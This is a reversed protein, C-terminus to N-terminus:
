INGQFKYSVFDLQQKLVGSLIFEANHVEIKETFLDRCAPLDNECTIVIFAFAAINKRIVMISKLSPRSHLVRGGGSEIIDRMMDIGPKVGPTLYFIMNQFLKRLKSKRMSERLNFHFVGEADKDILVFNAEDLIYRSKYSEEVWAPTIIHDCISIGSLFKVTRTAKAAILHTCKQISEALQGGLRELKRSLENVVKLDIGTFLVRPPVRHPDLTIVGDWDDGQNMTRQKKAALGVPSNAEYKRKDGQSAQEKSIVLNKQATPSIRVPITWPQMLAINLYSDIRFPDDMEYQQYRPSSYSRVGNMRGLFLDSLWQLNVIPIRWERAKVFKAGELRNCILLTNTRSFFGTYKAGVVELMTKVDIRDKGEFGTVAVVQDKCVNTPLPYSYVPFHIAKWPPLMKKLNLCDNLWNATVCRKGDKEALKFIDTTQTDCLIHTIRDSYCEDVIGGHERIVKKWTETYEKGILEPYEIVLFICGLLCNESTLTISPDHGFFHIQTAQQGLSVAPNFSQHVLHQGGIKSLVEALQRPDPDQISGPMFGGNNTINRLLRPVASNTSATATRPSKIPGIKKRETKTKSKAKTKPKKEPELPELKEINWPKSIHYSPGKKEAVVVPTVVEEENVEVAEEPEDTKELLLRPHYVEEEMIKKNNICDTVWDPMIINVDTHELACDYKKGEPKPVILHTTLKNFELQCQGGYFTIMAWLMNMDEKSVKSPTAVVGTFLQNIEPSFASTPLKTGCRLSMLVWRPTVVPLDFLHKAESIEPHDNEETDAIVMSVLDTLYMDQKGGGKELLEQITCQKKRAIGGSKVRHRGLTQLYHLM